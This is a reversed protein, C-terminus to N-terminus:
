KLHKQWRHDLKKESLVFGNREYYFVHLQNHRRGMFIYATGSYPDENLIDRIYHILAYWKYRFSVNGECYRYRM